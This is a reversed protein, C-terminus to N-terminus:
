SDSGPTSHPSGARSSSRPAIYECACYFLVLAGAIPVAVYIRALPIALAASRQGLEHTLLVLRSGGYVLVLGSFLAVIALAAQEAHRSHSGGRLSTVAEMLSPHLGRSFALVAGWLGLWILGYRAIEETFASPEALVFRTIVQWLVNVVLVGMLTAVFGEVAQDVRSRLREVRDILTM